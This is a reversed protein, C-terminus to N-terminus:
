RRLRDPHGCPAGRGLTAAAIDLTEIGNVPKAYGFELSNSIDDLVRIPGHRVYSWKEYFRHARDFRTDSWLLLRGAGAAIAYAEAHDLLRPGPRSGHLAPDVYVRCIEWAPDDLRRVAIM